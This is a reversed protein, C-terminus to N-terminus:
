EIGLYWKCIKEFERPAYITSDASVADYLVIWGDSKIEIIAEASGGEMVSFAFLTGLEKTSVENGDTDTIPKYNEELATAYEHPTTM